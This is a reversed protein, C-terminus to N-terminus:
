WLLCRKVVCRIVRSLSFVKADKTLSDVATSLEDSKEVSESLKNLARPARANIYDPTLTERFEVYEGPNAYVVVDDYV